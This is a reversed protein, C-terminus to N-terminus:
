ETNGDGDHYRSHAAVPGDDDGQGVLHYQRPGILQLALQAVHVLCGHGLLQHTGNDYQHQRQGGHQHNGAADCAGDTLHDAQHIVDGITFPIEGFAERGARHILQPIEGLPDVAKDVLQLPQEPIHELSGALHVAVGTVGIADGTLGVVVQLVMLRLHLLHQGRYLLHGVDTLLDGGVGVIGGVRGFLRLAGGILALLAELLHDLRHM